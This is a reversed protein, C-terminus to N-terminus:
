EEDDKQESCDDFESIDRRNRRRTNRRRKEYLIKERAPLDELIKLREKEPLSGWQAIEETTRYCGICLGSVPDLVCIKKCPSSPDNRKWEADMM